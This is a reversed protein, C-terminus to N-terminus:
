LHHACRFVVFLLDPKILDVVESVAHGFAMCREHEVGSSNRRLLDTLETAPLCGLIHYWLDVM